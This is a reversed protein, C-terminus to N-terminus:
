RITVSGVRLETLFSRASSWIDDPQFGWQLLILPIGILGVLLYTGISGAIAVIDLQRESFTFKGFKAHGSVAGRLANERSLAKAALFGVFMTAAIAGTVVVQQTMFRAFGVYGFLVAVIPAIGSLLIPLRAYTPWERSQPNAAGAAASFPKVLAVSILLLGTLVAFVLSLAVTLSFPSSLTGALASTLADAGTLCALAIAILHLLRASGDSVPLLRWQPRSPQLIAVSLRYVFVILWAFRMLAAMMEAIDPRMLAFWDLLMYVATLFVAFAAAPLLTAAFASVIRALYGPREDHDHTLLLPRVWRRIALLFGVAIALSLACAWFFASAKFRISFSLWSGVRRTLDRSESTLDQMTQGNLVTDLEVRQSLTSTFLDRRLAGIRDVLSAAAVTGDEAKIMAANIRTKRDNLTAIAAAVEASPTAGEATASKFTDQRAAIDSLVPRFKVSADILARSAREASLRAQLLRADDTSITGILPGLRELEAVQVDIEAITAAEDDLQQALVPAVFLGALVVLAALWRLAIRFPSALMAM